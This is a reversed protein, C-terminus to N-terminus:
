AIRGGVAAGIAVATGTVRLAAAADTALPMGRGVCWLDPLGAIQCADEPVGHRDRPPWHWTVGHPGHQEVPWAAWCLGRERCAFLADVGLGGAPRGGDRQILGTCTLLEAGLADTVTQVAARCQASTWSPDCDLSLQYRASGLLELAAAGTHVAAISRMARLRQQRGECSASLQVQARVAPWNAAPAMAHGLLQPVVGAGTADIVVDAALWDADVGLRWQGTREAARVVCGLRQKVGAQALRRTLGALWSAPTCPWLWVRGRRFPAAIAVLALWPGLLEPELLSAQGADLPACGCITRHEAQVAVGGLSGHAELLTVEAGAEAAAVAAACGAVGGGVVVCRM